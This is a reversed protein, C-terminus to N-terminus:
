RKITCVLRNDDYLVLVEMGPKRPPLYDPFNPELNGSQTVRGTLDFLKYQLGAISVAASEKVLIMDGQIVVPCERELENVVGIGTYPNWEETLISTCNTRNPITANYLLSGEGDSVCTVIDYTIDFPQPVHPHIYYASDWIYENDINFHNMNLLFGLSPGVGEWWYVTDLFTCYGTYGIYYDDFTRRTIAYGIRRRWIGELMLTDISTILCSGELECVNRIVTAFCPQGGVVCFNWLIISDGVQKSFDFLVREVTDVANLWVVQYVIQNVTDERLLEYHKFKPSLSLVFYEQGRWTTTSDIRYNIGRRFFTDQVSACYEHHLTITNWTKGIELMRQYGDYQASSHVSTLLFIALPALRIVKNM